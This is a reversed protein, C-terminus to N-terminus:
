VDGCGNPTRMPTNACRCENQPSRVISCRYGGQSGPHLPTRKCRNATRQWYENARCSGVVYSISSALWPRGDSSITNLFSSMATTARPHRPSAPKPANAQRGTPHISIWIAIAVFAFASSVATMSACPPMARHRSRSFTSARDHATARKKRKLSYYLIGFWPAHGHPQV